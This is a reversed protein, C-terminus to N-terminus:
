QLAGEESPQAGEVSVMVKGIRVELAIAACICRAAAQGRQEPTGGSLADKAGHLATIADVIHQLDLNM